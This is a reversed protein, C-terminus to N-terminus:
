SNHKLVYQENSQFCILFLCHLRDLKLDLIYNPRICRFIITPSFVMVIIYYRKVFFDNTYAYLDYKEHLSCKRQRKFEHILQSTVDVLM